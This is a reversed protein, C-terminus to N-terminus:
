RGSLSFAYSLFLTAILLVIILWRGRKAKEEPPKVKRHLPKPDAM